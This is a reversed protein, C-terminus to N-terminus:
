PLCSFMLMRTTKGATTKGGGRAAARAQVGTLKTPSTKGRIGGVPAKSVATAAGRSPANGRGRVATGRGTLCDIILLSFIGQLILLRILFYM